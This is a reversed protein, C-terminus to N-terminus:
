RGCLGGMEYFVSCEQTIKQTHAQNGYFTESSGERDHACILTARAGATMPDTEHHHQPNGPKNIHMACANHEIGRRFGPRFSHATRRAIQRDQTYPM